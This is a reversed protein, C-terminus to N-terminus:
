ILDIRPHPEPEGEASRRALEALRDMAIGLFRPPALALKSAAKRFNSAAGDLRGAGLLHLAAALQIMGRLIIEGDGEPGDPMALWVREWAEHAHWFAGANFRAVGELLSLRGEEPLDPEILTGIEGTM